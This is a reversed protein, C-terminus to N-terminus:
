ADGQLQSLLEEDSLETATQLQEQWAPDVAEPIVPSPAPTASAAPSAQEEFLLSLFYRVLDEITPHEFVLVETLTIGLNNELLVMLELTMLSDLGKNFLPEGPDIQGHDAEGMVKALQQQLFGLWVGRREAPTGKHDAASSRGLRHSPMELLKAKPM